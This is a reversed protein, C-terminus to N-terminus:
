LSLIGAPHFEIGSASMVKRKMVVVNPDASNLTMRESRHATNYLYSIKKGHTMHKFCM